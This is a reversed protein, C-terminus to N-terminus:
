RLPLSLRPESPTYANVSDHHGNYIAGGSLDVGAEPDPPLAQDHRSATTFLAHDKVHEDGM